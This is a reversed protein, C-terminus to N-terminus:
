LKPTPLERGVDEGQQIAGPNKYDPPKENTTSM